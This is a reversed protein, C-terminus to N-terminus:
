RSGDGPAAYVARWARLMAEGELRGQAEHEVATAHVLDGQFREPTDLHSHGIDYGIYEIHLRQCFEAMHRDVASRRQEAWRRTKETGDASFAVRPGRVALAVNERALIRRICAEMSETVEEPTFNTTGGITAITARRALRFAGNNALWPTAAAKLGARALPKGLPGFSREVKVPVSVYTFWYSTVVLLVVNPQYRDLWTDILDPLQKQPWITRITTEIAEGSGEGLIGDAVSAKNADAAINPDTDYSNGLRLVRM